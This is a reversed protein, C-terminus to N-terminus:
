ERPCLTVTELIHDKLKSRLTLVHKGIDEFARFEFQVIYDYQGFVPLLETQEVRQEGLKGNELIKKLEDRFIKQIEKESGPRARLLIHCQRMEM